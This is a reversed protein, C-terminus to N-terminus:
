CFHEHVVSVAYGEPLVKSMRFFARLRNQLIGNHLKVPCSNTLHSKNSYIVCKKPGKGTDFARLSSKFIITIANHRQRKRGSGTARAEKKM